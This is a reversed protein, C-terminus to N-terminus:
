GVHIGAEQQVFVGGRHRHYTPAFPSKPQNRAAGRLPLHRAAPIPSRTVSARFPVNNPPLSAVRGDRRVVM